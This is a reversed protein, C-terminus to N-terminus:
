SIRFKAKVLKVSEALFQKSHTYFRNLRPVTKASDQCKGVWKVVKGFWQVGFKSTKLRCNTRGENKKMWNPRAENKTM